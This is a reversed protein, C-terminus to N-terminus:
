KSFSAWSGTQCTTQWTKLSQQLRSDANLDSKSVVILPNKTFERVFKVPDYYFDIHKQSYFVFSPSGGYYFSSTTDYHAAELFNRNKREQQDVLLGMSKQPLKALCLALKINEPIEYQSSLLYTQPLFNIIFFLAIITLLSFRLFTNKIQLYLYSLSLSILPLFIIVYWYIKTKMITLLFIFPLPSLLFLYLLWQRNKISVRGNFYQWVLNVILLLYAILIILSIIGLKDWLYSFYYFKGGFHLEIPVTLRKFVQSLFHENIFFWKYKILGAIYWLSPIVIILLIRRMNIKKRHLLWYVIEILLPYFGLVSKSFVGFTLFALKLWFNDWFYFYGLWTVAVMVDTNLITSRELFIASGAVTAVPIISAVILDLKKIKPFLASGIKKALLYTLILLVFGFFVFIMRSWFESRGFVSFIIAILAHSLPPKDLWIHGNFTTFLSKNKLIEQAIQAYMGEDWDYFLVHALHINRVILGALIFLFTILVM